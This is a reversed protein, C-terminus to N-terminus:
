ISGLVKPDPGIRVFAFIFGDNDENVPVNEYVENRRQAQVCDQISLLMLVFVTLFSRRKMCLYASQSQSVFPIVNLPFKFMEMGFM